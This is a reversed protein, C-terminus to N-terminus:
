RCQGDAGLTQGDPCEPAGVYGLVDVFVRSQRQANDGIGNGANFANATVAAAASAPAPPAVSTTLAPVGSISGGASFSDANAVRAAAVFVNGSARVGADGADVTGVPAILRITSEPDSPTVKFAGIGAGAISGASNVESYGDQTFRLVIPPFNSANRPGQGANLDGNSSWLSIDGGGRTFLRSQNLVMSGDAFGRIEGGRLTLVGEYGAPISKILGAAGVSANYIGAELDRTLDPDGSVNLATLRRAVQATSRVVSGAIFDGGPGLITVSGGRSTQITSLRLDVNGTAVRSAVAPQGDTLIIGNGAASATGDSNLVLPKGNALKLDTGAIPKNGVIKIAEGFPHDALYNPNGQAKALSVYYTALNDTYGRSVPFLTQVARYGRVYQNFSPSAPDSTAALEGFYLKDILFRTRDTSSLGAFAQYLDAYRSYSAADLAAGSPAGAGFVQTFAAPANDRLWGALVPAYGYRSRDPRANGAEDKVQVFLDGDLAALNAPDLYTTQLASYDAGNAVGFLAYINAGQSSLWPNRDNGLTRIGGAESRQAGTASTVFPGLDRGAEVFLSGPGGVVINNGMVSSRGATERATSVLTTGTIDGGASIKTVDSTRLNQGEYFLDVINGGARILAQKPLSLVVDTLDGGVVVRASQGDGLHILGRDHLRRLDTDSTTSFVAPFSVALPDLGGFLNTPAADSMALGLRGISGGALLSLQGYRSPALVMPLVKTVQRDRTAQEGMTIDGFLSTLELSPALIVTTPNSPTPTYYFESRNNAISVPGTGIASFGAIASFFGLTDVTSVDGRSVSLAGIGGIAVAGRAALDFTADAVRVQLLNRKDGGFYAGATTAGEAAAVDGGIVATGQGSALDFQGGLLKGGATLRLDGAGLSVLAPAGDLSGTVLSNDLAVTLDSVDNGARIAVDGGALAGVGSTFRNYSLAAQTNDPATSGYRWAQTTSSNLGFTPELLATTQPYGRAALIASASVGTFPSGSRGFLEAWVDRRGLVDRGATITIAGGGRSFVPASVLGNSPGPIFKTPIAGAAPIAGTVGLAALDAAQARVGATYVATGGIQATKGSNGSPDPRLTLGGLRRLDVDQAAAIDITGDGTRVTTGVSVTKSRLGVMPVLLKAASAYTGAGVGQAFAEGLGSDKLFAVVDRLRAAVGTPRVVSGIFNGNQSFGDWALAAERAKGALGGVGAGWNLLTYFEGNLDTDNGADLTALLEDLGLPTAPVGPGTLLLQFNGALRASGREAAVSYTTEGTIKVSGVATVDTQLPNASGAMAGGTFRYATSHAASGDALLPFLEAIGLPDGTGGAGVANALPNFPSNVFLPSSESGQLATGINITVRQGFYARNGHPADAYLISDGCSATETAGCGLRLAPNFTRDGGGLQYSIYDADTLDHFAFFGDTISRQIDVSGTARLTLLPAEGGVKGGVRYTMDVFNAFLEAEKGAVVEYRDQGALPGSTYAGLLSKILLGADLADAYGASGDRNVIQGAGFNWNSRLQIDFGSTLEIGPRKRWGGFAEGNQGAVSFNRVFDPLTGPALDALFNAKGAVVDNADLRPSFGDAGFGIGSFRESALIADLDFRRYAELTMESAGTITGQASVAVVNGDLLPARLSVKGGLDPAAVRYVKSQLQTIPDTVTEAIPARSTQLAAVDIMAGQDIRIAARIAPDEPVGIGITVQGGQAQRADDAAYGSTRAVLRATSGLSVGNQGYLSIAGGDIRASKYRPDNPKILHVDDGSTDITGALNLLGGDATLSVSDAVLAQGAGLSLDGAGSRIAIDGQFRRGYNTVFGGLDFSGATDLLFSATRTVNAAVGPNIRADLTVLSQTGGIQLAGASGIGSDVVLATTGATTIETGLGLSTLKILGGSATMTTKGIGDDFTKTYGGVDLQTSGALALNGSSTVEIHGATARILTDTIALDYGSAGGSFAIRAGPAQGDAPAVANLGSGTITLPGGTTFTYNPRVYDKGTVDQRTRDVIFPTRLTLPVELAADRDLTTFSGVGSVYMGKAANLSVGSGNLGADFGYTRFTGNGFTIDTANITLTRLAGCFRAGLDTCGALDNSSNQLVLHDANITVNTPGTTSQVPQLLALGEADITLNNYSYIGQTFTLLDPTRYTLHRARAFQAEVEPRFSTGGIRLNDGSLILDFAGDATGSGVTASRDIAFGRSTDLTIAAGSLTSGRGIRLRAPLFSNAEAAEGERSVLRETGTSLRLVAGAGTDDTTGGNSGTADPNVVYAGSRKDDLRGEARLSAGTALRPADSIQLESFRGGVALLLEPAAFDVNSDVVIKQGTVALATTGDKRDTRLAGISLSNANLSTLTDTTLTLYGPLAPDAAAGPAAIRILSGGIDVQSGSGGTAAASAFAGAVKLSALPSIVVRAADIALRPSLVNAHAAAKTVSASLGTTEIRSYKSFVARTQVTFSRRQSQSLGSGATGFTGAVVVSGDLLTTAGGALPAAAETNEVLRLAGPLLAYHAPLLLYEGAPIGPAADLTVSLGANLGYLDVGGGGRYDAGYIPDYLAVTAENKPLIAYVQRGDAFQLGGNGSFTDANLRDLVDRSGGTGSIFEFGFVDGGGRTDVRVDTASASDVSIDAGAIRLEGLPAASLVASTGPSFFSELLDTTTGYPVIRADTGTASTRASVSTLSDKGFHVSRTRPAFVSGFSTIANSGIDLLGMPARLVGDQEIHAGRLALWSGASWPVEPTTGRALISVTGDGHSSALIYPAATSTKGARQDELLQQLNGTGTTAYVQRAALTLNGNSVVQGSLGPTFLGTTLDPLGQTGILRIDGSAELTVGGSQAGTATGASTRFAASGVIDIARASLTLLGEGAGDRLQGISQNNSILSIYGASIRANSGSAATIVLNDGTQLGDVQTTTAILARNLALDVAGETTFGGRAILTDFGAAQIQSASLVAGSADSGATQRIVPAAWDLIGGSARTRTRDADGDDGGRASLSAGALVAGNGVTLSGADSWQTTRTVTGPNILADYLGSAGDLNIASGAEAVLKGSPDIPSTFGSPALTSGLSALQTSLAGGAIVRGELRRVMGTLSLPNGAGDRLATAAILDARPNYLTMGSLDTVSGTVLHIGENLAVRGTFVAHVDINRGQAPDILSFLGGNTVRQAGNATTFVNVLSTANEDFGTQQGPTSGGFIAALGGGGLEEPRIGLTRQIAFISELTDAQAISGGAIRISGANYLRPVTIAAQAAGTIAGGALVDLETIGGLKLNAARRDWADAPRLPTLVQSLDAGSTLGVLSNVETQSLVSPLVWQTLDLTEGAGIEFRTTDLFASTGARGNAFLGQVLRSKNATLDLTGFGTRQLFDLGIRPGGQGEAAAGGMAIEPAVLTFTGGGAFGFGRLSGAGVSVTARATDPVLAPSVSEELLSYPTFQVSQNTGGLPQDANNGSGATNDTLNISAYRTANILSVNGGRGTLELAGTSGVYGGSSVDLRASDAIRISGSLDYGRDGGVTVTVNPAVTLAISGGNQWARGLFQDGGAFDNTWRGATSLLGSVNIDFPNLDPGTAYRDRLDDDSRFPSGISGASVGRGDRGFDRTTVAISGGVIAVDGALNVARGAQIALSGGNALTLRNGQALTVGGTTRLSLAALGSVALRAPDLLTTGAALDAGPAGLYIDGNQATSGFPGVRLYGATPLQTATAQLRRPDGALTSALSPLQVSSLQRSGAFADAFLTGGLTIASGSLILGGADRGEDYANEFRLGRLVSNAYTRNVGFAAQVESVGDGVAVYTENPDAAEVNVVRGDATLLRSSRVSGAQYAVWGGSIDITSGAAINIRPASALDGTTELAAATLSITGGKTMLEAASVAIQSAASGGEILPSGVWAVGDSRVGSLRPDIYISAGNLTFSGDTTTERYTPTDRLENRKLVGVFYTAGTDPDTKKDANILLSNREASVQFDKIGSVDLLAGDVVDVKSRALTAGAGLVNSANYRNLTFEAGAAGGIQLNASPALILANRGVSVEAPGFDGLVAAADVADVYAAGIRIQSTKFPAPIAATGRPIVEGNDDPTIVLGGAEGPNTAGALTVTGALLSITGNRSVSTTAAVLGGNTVSGALGAGLSAYGLPTSILGSNTVTGTGGFATRLLLGRVFRDASDDAGTSPTATIAKGAQLSVQGEAATLSGANTVTSGTLIVFGGKGATISAGREVNVGRDVTGTFAGDLAVPSLGYFGSVVASTLEGGLSASGQNLTGQVLGNQLFAQNRERVSTGAFGSTGAANSAIKFAHGIDLSSALLSNASVQSGAGFLVGNRNIVVVTGDAKIQGLITSGNATPDVVRNVAVWDKQAVGNLKQDIQLTTQAGIDFRDWSLIARSDTQAIRVLTTGSSVTEGPLGAGQWTALGTSDASALASRVLGDAATELVVAQAQNGAARLEVARARNAIAQRVSGIAVLGGDKIREFTGDARLQDVALGNSVSRAVAAQAQTAFSRIQQARTQAAIQRDLAGTQTASRIQGPVAAPLITPATLTTGRVAALQAQATGPLAAILSALAAASVSRLLTRRAHRRHEGHVGARLTARDAM